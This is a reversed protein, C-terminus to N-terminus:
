DSVQEVLGLSEDSVEIRKADRWLLELAYYGRTRESFVHVIFDIYDAVIWESASTGSVGLCKVKEKKMVRHLDNQLAKIHPTNMGTVILYYDTISSIGRVDLVVPDVGKKDQIVEIAM